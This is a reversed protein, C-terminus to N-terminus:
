PGSRPTPRPYQLEMATVGIGSGDDKYIVDIVVRDRDDMVLVFNRVGLGWDTEMVDKTEGSPLRYTKRKKAYGITYVWGEKGHALLV